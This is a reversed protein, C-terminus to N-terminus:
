YNLIRAQKEPWNKNTLNNKYLWKHIRICCKHIVYYLMEYLSEIM